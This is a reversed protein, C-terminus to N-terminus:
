WPVERAAKLPFASAMRWDVVVGPVIVKFAEEPESVPAETLTVVPGQARSLRAVAQRPRAALMESWPALEVSALDVMALAPYRGIQWSLLVMVMDISHRTTLVKAGLLECAACRERRSPM